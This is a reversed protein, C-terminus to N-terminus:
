QGYLYECSRDAGDHAMIRDYFAGGQSVVADVEAARLFGAAVTREAAARLKAEYDGRDKYRAELSPRRDNAFRREAESRAFPNFSGNFRDTFGEFGAKATRTNFAARTGLPAALEPPVIGGQDLGDADPKPVLAEYPRGVKPPIIDAIRQTEFRAGFDLRPPRLNGVPMPMDSLKPFAAKYDAVTVLTGGAIRPYASAPPETGDRVWRNIALLLARMERHHNMPNVCNAFNGRNRQRGVFHQAGAILYIRVSPDIAADRKGDPDTHILSAARNWYESSANVYLLKPVAGVARAKDLVSARAGSVPDQETMSTFPFYDTPYAHDELMSFHRTPMAFRYDFAGKGGGAVHIYAGDFVPKSSEDVHLGRLLMTQIVRGSQSIGFMLTRSPLPAGELPHSRLYALLDRIGALGAAVVVPDRATYTLEYLHGPEFGEELALQRPVAGDQTEVFRWRARPIVQRKGDPRDRQTLVADPAGAQAFPYALGQNGVFGATGSPADVLIEYAVKGTIPKGNDTAVPPKLILRRDNPGSTAVDWAWASWLMTFGEHLLFANGLDAASSPDNSPAEDFQGLMSLNGRNPVDYLLTGNTRAGEVPRMMFFDASFVVLGRPDRPALKLDAIAANAAAKPDLAFWARGRLKEYAGAKGFPQGGALAHRELIEIREVAAHALGSWALAVLLFLFRRM